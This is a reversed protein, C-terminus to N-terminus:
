SKLEKGTVRLFIEELTAEQSHITLPSTQALFSALGARDDMAFSRSREGDAERYVVTVQRQGYARKLAEPSDMAAIKGGYLFAVTDCLSDALEMNHTTLFVAAGRDRQERILERVNAATSPDLGGTPEDLFLYEPRNLLARALTLRQRMGKSYEIAKQHAAERLGVRDLLVIPDLTPVTFLAAYYKLNEYGTLRAYVNPQEFSVGIRNFFQTKLARVSQGDYLVEGKQLPLLGTMLNQVTSKGAGSPGLFGFIKGNEVRFSVDSVAYKGKGGYDHSVHDVTIM